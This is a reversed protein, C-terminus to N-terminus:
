HSLGGKQLFYMTTSRVKQALEAKTWAGGLTLPRDNLLHKKANSLTVYIGRIM